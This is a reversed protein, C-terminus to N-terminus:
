YKHLQHSYEHVWAPACLLPHLCQTHQLFQQLGQVCRSCSHEMQSKCGGQLLSPQFSHLPNSSLPTCTTKAKFTLEIKNSDIKKIRSNIKLTNFVFYALEGKCCVASCLCVIFCIAKDFDQTVLVSVSQKTGVDNSRYTEKLKRERKSKRTRDGNTISQIEIINEKRLTSTFQNSLCTQGHLITCRTLIDRSHTMSM